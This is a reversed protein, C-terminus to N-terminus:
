WEGFKPDLPYKIECIYQVAYFKEQDFDENAVWSMGGDGDVKVDFGEANLCDARATPLEEPTVYRVLSAEPVDIGPYLELLRDRAADAQEEAIQAAEDPPVVPHTVVKPEEATCGALTAVVVAVLAISIRDHAHKM